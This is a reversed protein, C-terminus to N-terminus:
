GVENSSSEPPRTAPRRGLRRSPPPDESVRAHYDAGGHADVGEGRAERDGRRLADGALDVAERAREGTEGALVVVVKMEGRAVAALPHELHHVRLAIGPEDVKLGRREPVDPPGRRVELHRTDLRGARARFPRRDLGFSTLAEDPQEGPHGAPWERFHAEARGLQESAGAAQKAPEVRREGAEIMRREIALQAPVE